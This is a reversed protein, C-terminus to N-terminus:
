WTIDGFHPPMCHLGEKIAYFDVTSNGICQSHRSLGIDGGKLKSREPSERCGNFRAWDEVAATVSGGWYSEGGGAFPNTGDLLGHVALVPVPHSANNPWPYRVGGFVAVAALFNSLESALRSCFRAGRSFGVCYIRRPDINILGDVVHLVAKTYAVDDPCPTDSYLICKTAAQADKIVNLNM